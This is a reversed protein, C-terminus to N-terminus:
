QLIRGAFYRQLTKPINRKGTNKIDDKIFQVVDVLEERSMSSLHENLVARETETFDHLLEIEAQFDLMNEGHYLVVM